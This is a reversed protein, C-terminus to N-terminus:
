LWQLKKIFNDKNKELAKQYVNAGKSFYIQWLNQLHWNVPVKRFWKEVREPYAWINEIEWIIRNKEVMVGKNRHGSLYKWTDIPSFLRIDIFVDQTTQTTIKEARELNRKKINKELNELKFVLPM